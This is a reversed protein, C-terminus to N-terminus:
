EFNHMKRKALSTFYIKGKEISLRKQVIEKGKQLISTVKTVILTRNQRHNFVINVSGGIFKIHFM